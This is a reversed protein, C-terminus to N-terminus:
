GSCPTGRERLLARALMLDAPRTIKVNAPDGEVAACFLGLRALMASDDTVDAPDLAAAALWEARRVVQPTQLARLSSREPHGTIRGSGDVMAITDNLPTGPVAGALGAAAALVRGLLDAAVLPRAGDHVAVYEASAARVAAEVSDRRRAGGRVVVTGTTMGMDTLLARVPDESASSVVLIPPHVSPVSLMGEISWRLVPVGCLDAFLKDSAGFRASVGAAVIAAQWDLALM